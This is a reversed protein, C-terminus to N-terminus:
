APLVDPNVYYSLEPKYKTNVMSYQVTDGASTSGLNNVFLVNDDKELWIWIGITGVQTQGSLTGTTPVTLGAAAVATIDTGFNVFPQGSNFPILLPGENKRQVLCYRITNPFTFKCMFFWWGTERIQIGVPNTPVAPNIQAERKTSGGM